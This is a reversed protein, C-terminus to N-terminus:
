IYINDLFLSRGAIRRQHRGVGNAGVSKRVRLRKLAERRGRVSHGASKRTTGGQGRKKGREKAFDGPGPRQVMM